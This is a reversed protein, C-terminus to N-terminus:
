RRQRLWLAAAIPALAVGIWAGGSVYDWDRGSSIWVAWVMGLGPFLAAAASTAPHPRPKAVTLALEAIVLGFLAGSVYPTTGQMEYEGLILAGLASALAAALVALLQRM